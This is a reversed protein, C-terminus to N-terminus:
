EPKEAATHRPGSVALGRGKSVSVVVRDEVQRRDGDYTLKKLQLYVTHGGLREYGAEHTTRLSSLPFGSLKDLQEKNLAYRKGFAEVSMERYKEGDTKASLVDTGVDKIEPAVIRVESWPLFEEESAYSWAGLVVMGIATIGIATAFMAPRRIMTRR